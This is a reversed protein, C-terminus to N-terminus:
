LINPDISPDGYKSFNGKAPGSFSDNSKVNNAYDNTVTM